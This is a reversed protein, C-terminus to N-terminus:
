RPPSTPYQHTKRFRITSPQNQPTNYPHRKLCFAFNGHSYIPINRVLWPRAPMKLLKNLNAVNSIQGSFGKVDAEKLKMKPTITEIM